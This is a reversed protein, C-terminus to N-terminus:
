PTGSQRSYDMKVATVNTNVLSGVRFKKMPARIIHKLDDLIRITTVWAAAVPDYEQVVADDTAGLNGVFQVGIDQNPSVIFGDTAAISTLVLTGWADSAASADQNLITEADPMFDANGNVARSAYKATLGGLGINAM